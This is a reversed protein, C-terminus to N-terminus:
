IKPENELANILNEIGAEQNGSLERPLLGAKDFQNALDKLAKRVRDPGISKGILKPYDSWRVEYQIHGTSLETMHHELQVTRVNM